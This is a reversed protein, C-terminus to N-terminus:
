KAKKRKPFSTRVGVGFSIFGKSSKRSKFYNFEPYIWDTKNPLAIGFTFIRYNESADGDHYQNNIYYGMFPQVSKIKRSVTFGFKTYPPAAESFNEHFITGTHFNASMDFWQFSRPTIQHRLFGEFATPLYLRGGIELRLPLGQAFGIGPSFTLGKHVVGEGDVIWLLNDVGLTLAQKDKELTQGSYYNSTICGTFLLLHAFICIFTRIPKM